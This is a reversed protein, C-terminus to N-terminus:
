MHWTARVVALAILENSAAADENVFLIGRSDLAPSITNSPARTADQSVEQDISFEVFGKRGALLFARVLVLLTSGASRTIRICSWLCGAILAAVRWGSRLGGKPWFFGRCLHLPLEDTGQDVRVTELGIAQHLLGHTNGDLSDGVVQDAVVIDVVNEVVM